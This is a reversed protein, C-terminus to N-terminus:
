AAELILHCTFLPCFSWLVFPCWVHSQLLWMPLPHDLRLWGTKMAHILSSGELWSRKLSRVWLDHAFYFLWKLDSTKPKNREFIENQILNELFLNGFSQYSIRLLHDVSFDITKDPLMCLIEPFERITWHNPGWVKVLSLGFDRM